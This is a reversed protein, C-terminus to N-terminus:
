PAKHAERGESSSGPLMEHLQILRELPSLPRREEPRASLAKGLERLRALLHDALLSASTPVPKPVPTALTQPNAISVDCLVLPSVEGLCWTKEFLHFVTGRPSVRPNSRATADDGLASGGALLLVAAVLTALLTRIRM